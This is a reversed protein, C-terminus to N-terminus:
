ESSLTWGANALITKQEATLNDRISQTLYLNHTSGTIPTTNVHTILSDIVTEWPTMGFATCLQNFQYYYPDETTVTQNVATGSADSTINNVGWMPFMKGLHLDYSRDSGNTNVFEDLRFQVWKAYSLFYGSSGILWMETDNITFNEFIVRMFGLVVNYSSTTSDIFPFNVLKLTYEDCDMQRALTQSLRINKNYGILSLRHNKNLGSFNCDQFKIQKPKLGSQGGTWLSLPGYAYTSTGQLLKTTDLNYFTLNIIHSNYLDDRYSNNFYHTDASNTVNTFDITMNEVICYTLRKDVTWTQTSEDLVVHVTIDDIHTAELNTADSPVTTLTESDCSPCPTGGGPLNEIETAYERFTKGTVSGGKATIANGIATKTNELYTLKQAITGM